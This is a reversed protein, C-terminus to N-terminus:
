RRSGQTGRRALGLVTSWRGVFAVSPGGSHDYPTRPHHGVRIIARLQQRRDLSAWLSRRVMQQQEWARMADGPAPPDLVAYIARDALLGVQMAPATVQPGFHRGADAVIELTTAGGGVRMGARELTDLLELWAGVALGSPDAAQRSRRRRFRRVAAVGPALGLLALLVVLGVLLPVLIDHGPQRRPLSVKAPKEIGHQIQNQPVANAQRPVTTATPAAPPPPPPSAASSLSPTPDAVVWGIGAVPIEAWTWAERNTVQHQGAPILGPRAGGPPIRFGTVLRAPVGLYRALMVFMTAYQEPTATRTVTVANIVQALSTGYPSPTPGATNPPPARRGDSQLVRLATQLFAVTPAPRQGSVRAVYRLATAVDPATGPPLTMERQATADLSQGIVVGIGDASTVNALTVIPAQSEVQYSLPGRIARAPVVMGTARDADATLGQIEVPRDMFPLFQLDWARHLRYAQTVVAAAGIGASTRVTPAPLAGPTGAPAAPVRGGTPLFTSALNWTGGDYEDLIAIGLYGTSVRDIEVGFLPTPARKPNADRLSSVADVPNIVPSRNPPASRVLAAPKARVGPLVPVVTGLVLALGVVAAGLVLARRSAPQRGASAPDEAGSALDVLARERDRQVGLALASAALSAFLVAGAATDRSPASSTVAYALAFCVVPALLGVPSRRVRWLLEASAAGCVWTVLFPAALLAPAGSLPLTESLLRAPGDALGSWLGSGAVILEGAVLGLLSAGYAVLPPQRLVRSFLTSVVISAVAALVLVGPTAAVHFARLWPTAAMLVSVTVALIAM